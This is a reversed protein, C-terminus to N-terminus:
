PKVLMSGCSPALAVWSLADDPTANDTCLLAALESKCADVVTSTAAACGTQALTLQVKVSLAAIDPASTGCVAMKPAVAQTLDSCAALDSQSPAFGGFVEHCVPTESLWRNLDDRWVDVQECSVANLQAACKYLEPDASDGICTYEENFREYAANAFDGDQTCAQLRAAISYGAQRCHEHPEVDYTGTCAAMALATCWLLWLRRGRKM